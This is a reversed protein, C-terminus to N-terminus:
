EFLLGALPGSYRRFQSRVPKGYTWHVRVTDTATPAAGTGEKIPVFVLGSDPKKAGTSFDRPSWKRAPVM